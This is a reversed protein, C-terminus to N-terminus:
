EGDHSTNSRLLYALPESAADKRILAVLEGLSRRTSAESVATNDQKPTKSQLKSEITIM